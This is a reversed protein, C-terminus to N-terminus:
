QKMAEGVAHEADEEKVKALSFADENLWALPYDFAQVYEGPKGFKTSLATNMQKRLVNAALNAAPIRLKAAAAPLPAVGHDASLAIWVNALGVQHGLFNFFDALQHDMALAMAQMEPSDPGVQHGLIDNASLSVTLLDTATGSGLREYTALERAFEFEYDNAFPTSGVVEYFG